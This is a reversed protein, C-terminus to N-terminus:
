FTTNCHQYYIPYTKTMQIMLVKRGNQNLTYGCVFGSDYIEIFYSCVDHRNFAKAQGLDFSRKHIGCGDYVEIM